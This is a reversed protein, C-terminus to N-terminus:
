PRGKKIGNKAFLSYNKQIRKTTLIRKGIKAITFM